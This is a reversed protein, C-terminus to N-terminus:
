GAATVDALLQDPDLAALARKGQLLLFGDVLLEAVAPWDVEVDLYAGVWGAPGVYAPRYWRVPDAALYEQQVGPAAKIWAEVRGSGHHDDMTCAFQKGRAFYAPGGHSLRTTADPLALCMRHVRWRAPAASADLVGHGDTM